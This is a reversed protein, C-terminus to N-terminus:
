FLLILLGVKSGFMMELFLIIMQEWRLRITMGLLILIKEM